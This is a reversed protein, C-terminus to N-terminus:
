EMDGALEISLMRWSLDERLEILENKTWTEGAHTVIRVFTCVEEPTMNGFMWHWKAHFEMDWAVINNEDQEEGPNIRSRPVLHHRNTGTVRNFNQRLRNVKKKKKKKKRM